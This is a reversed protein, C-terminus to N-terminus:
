IENRVFTHAKIQLMLSLLTDDDDEEEEDDDDTSLIEVSWELRLCGSARKRILTNLFLILHEEM